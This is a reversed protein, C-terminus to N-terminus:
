YIRCKLSSLAWIKTNQYYTPYKIVQNKRPVLYPGVIVRQFDECGFIEKGKDYVEERFFFFMHPNDKCSVTHPIYKCGYEELLFLNKELHNMFDTKQMDFWGKCEVLLNANLKITRRNGFNVSIYKKIPHKCV